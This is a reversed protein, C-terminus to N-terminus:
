CVTCSLMIPIDIKKCTYLRLSLHVFKLKSRILPCCSFSPSVLSCSDSVSEMSILGILQSMERFSFIDVQQYCWSWSHKYLIDQCYMLVDWINCGPGFHYVSQGILMWCQSGQLWVTLIALLVQPTQGQPCNNWCIWLCMLMVKM